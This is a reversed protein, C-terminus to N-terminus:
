VFASIRAHVRVHCVCVCVCVRMAHVCAHCACVCPMCVRMAHVHGFTEITLMVPVLNVNSSRGGGEEEVEISYDM